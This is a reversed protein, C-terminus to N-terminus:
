DEDLMSGPWDHSIGKSRVISLAFTLSSPTSTYLSPAAGAYVGTLLAMGEIILMLAESAANSSLKTAAIASVSGCTGLAGDTNNGSIAMMENVMVMNFLVGM